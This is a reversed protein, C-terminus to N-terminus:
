CMKATLFVEKIFETCPQPVALKYENERLNYSTLDCRRVFRSTLYEPATNNVISHMMIAKSVVRESPCSEVVEKFKSIVLLLSVVVIVLGSAEFISDFVFLSTQTIPPRSCGTSFNLIFVGIKKQLFQVMAKTQYPKMARIGFTESM